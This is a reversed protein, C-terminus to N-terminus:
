KCDHGKNEFVNRSGELRQFFKGKIKMYMGPGEGPKKIHAEKKRIQGTKGDATEV